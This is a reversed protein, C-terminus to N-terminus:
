EIYFYSYEEGNSKNVAFFPSSGKDGGKVLPIRSKSSKAHIASAPV